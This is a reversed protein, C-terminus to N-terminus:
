KQEVVKEADAITSPAVPDASCGPESASADPKPESKDVSADSVHTDPVVAPRATLKHYWFRATHASAAIETMYTSYKAVLVFADKSFHFAVGWYPPVFLTQGKHITVDKVQMKRAGQETTRTCFLEQPPAGSEALMTSTMSDPAVEPRCVFEADALQDPHVLKAELTGNTATFYSRHAVHRRLASTSGDTGFMVDYRTVCALPPALLAYHAVVRARTEPSLCQVAADNGDSYYHAGSSAQQLKTFSDLSVAVRTGKAADVVSVDVDGHSRQMAHLNIEQELADETRTRFVVPQKLDLVDDIRADVVGDLEFV